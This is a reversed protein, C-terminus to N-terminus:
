KANERNGKPHSRHFHDFANVFWWRGTADRFRLTQPLRANLHEVVDVGAVIPPKVEPTRLQEPMEARAAAGLALAVLLVLSRRM